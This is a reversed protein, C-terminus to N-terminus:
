KPEPNRKAAILLIALIIILGVIFVLAFSSTGSIIDGILDM